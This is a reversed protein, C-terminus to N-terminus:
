AVDGQNQSNNQQESLTQSLTNLLTDRDFKAIYESFGVEMGRDIDQPTAHSTLALMPTEKWSTETKVKEAFAFGDMDPMEIDSIIVDFEAGKECMELAEHPSELSIVHYGAISLLPTLMNRFFPSDDVLLIRKKDHGNASSKGSGNTDAQTFPTDAHNKFWSRNNDQLYYAVDVVDTARDEIIASGLLGGKGGELQVNIHEETIDIIEDVILGMSRSEDAFVLVPKEGTEPIQVSMDFPVLPMLQGRYQVMMQGASREITSLDVNELRAVLSLPVAKPTQDGAAFLLLSTKESHQAAVLDDQASDEATDAADIQGIHNAIGNPDLIMIVSGDGLITNGSFLEIDKLMKAVPKVVIEETDYVRDVIIGFDSAGVQTVVIYQHRNDDNLKEAPKADENGENEDAQAELNESLADWEEQTELKLKLLNSLSILPLLRDRLRFVPAGKIEEIQNDSNASTMVLERVSLQPIAFREQASEVILASVIALTLPIKITFTSGKGETSRLDVAGGIKEINTRVVDM